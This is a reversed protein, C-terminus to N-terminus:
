RKRVLDEWQEEKSHPNEEKKPEILNKEIGKKM